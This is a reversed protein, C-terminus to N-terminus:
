CFTEFLMVSINQLGCKISELADFQIISEARCTNLRIINGEPIDKFLEKGKELPFEIYSGLDEMHLGKM